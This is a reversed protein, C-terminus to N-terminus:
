KLYGDQSYYNYGKKKLDNGNKAAAHLDAFLVNVMNNHRTHLLKETSGGITAM